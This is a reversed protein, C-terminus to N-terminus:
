LTAARAARFASTSNICWTSPLRQTGSKKLRVYEGVVGVIDVSSKLQEVFDM